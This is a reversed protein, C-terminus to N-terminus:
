LLCLWLECSRDHRSHNRGGSWLPNPERHVHFFALLSPLLFFPASCWQLRVDNCKDIHSNEPSVFYKCWSIVWLTNIHHLKLSHTDTHQTSVDCSSRETIFVSWMNLIRHLTPPVLTGLPILSWSLGSLFIPLYQNANTNHAFQMGFRRGLNGLIALVLARFIVDWMCQKHHISSVLAAACSIPTLYEAQSIQVWNM